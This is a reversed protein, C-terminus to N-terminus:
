EDVARAQADLKNSTRLTVLTLNRCARSWFAVTEFDKHEVGDVELALFRLSPLKQLSKAIARADARSIPAPNHRVSQLMAFEIWPINRAASELLLSEPIDDLMTFAAFTHLATMPALRMLAMDLDDRNPSEPLFLICVFTVGSTTSKDFFPVFSSPGDYFTLHPLHITDLSVQNQAEFEPHLTLRTITPHRNLFFSLSPHDEFQVTYRFESLNKFHARNLTETLDVKSNFLLDLSELNHLQLLVSTFSEATRKPLNATCKSDRIAFRRVHDSLRLAAIQSRKSEITRLFAKLQAATQLAVIRYLLRTALNRFLRSTRCLAVLDPRSAHSMVATLIENPLWTAISNRQKAARRTLM